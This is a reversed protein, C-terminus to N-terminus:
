CKIGIPFSMQLIYINRQPIVGQYLPYRIVLVYTLCVRGSTGPLVMEMTLCRKLSKQDAGPCPFPNGLRPCVTHLMTLTSLCSIRM